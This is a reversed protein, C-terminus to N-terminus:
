RYSGTWRSVEGLIGGVQEAGQKSGRMGFARKV